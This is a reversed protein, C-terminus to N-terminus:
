SMFIEVYSGVPKRCIPCPTAHIYKEACEKCVCMHGCPMFAMTIKADMCIVCEQKGEVNNLRERADELKKALKKRKKEAKKLEETKQEDSQFVADYKKNLMRFEDELQDIRKQSAAIERCVRQHSSRAERADHELEAIRELKFRQEAGYLQRNLEHLAQLEQNAADFDIRAMLALPVIVSPSLSDVFDSSRKTREWRSYGKWREYAARALKMHENKVEAAVYLEDTMMNTFDILICM